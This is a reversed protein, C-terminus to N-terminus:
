LLIPILSMMVVDVFLLKCDMNPITTHAFCVVTHCIVGRYGTATAAM